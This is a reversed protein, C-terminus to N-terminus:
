AEDGCLRSDGGRLVQGVALMLSLTSFSACGGCTTHTVTVVGWHGRLARGQKTTMAALVLPSAFTWRSVSPLHLLPRRHCPSSNPLSFPSQRLYSVSIACVQCLPGWILLSPTLSRFPCCCLQAKFHLLLSLLLDCAVWRAHSWATHLACLLFLAQPGHATEKPLCLLTKFNVM